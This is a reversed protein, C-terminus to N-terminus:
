SSHKTATESLELDDVYLQDIVVRKLEEDDPTHERVVHRLTVIAATPSPKDGFTITRLEYVQIPTTLIKRSHLGIFGLM